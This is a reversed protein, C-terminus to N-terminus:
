QRIVNALSSLVGNVFSGSEETSYRNALEVAESIVVAVSAEHHDLLEFVGIRLINRDIVPMREVKWRQAYSAIMNDIIPLQKFVGEVIYRVFNDPPAPLDSLVVPPEVGKLEAEYLIHLAQERAQRREGWGSPFPFHTPSM